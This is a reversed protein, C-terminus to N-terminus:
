ADSDTQNTLFSTQEIEEVDGEILDGREHQTFSFTPVHEPIQTHRNSQVGYSLMQRIRPLLRSNMSGTLDNYNKTASKLGKGVLITKEVIVGISEVIKQAGEVIREQNESQRQVDLQVRAFGILCALAAPGAVTIQLKAAKHLFNPDSLIVKEVAGENPVFMVSVVRPARQERGSARYQAIVETKYNKASLTKLHTNMTKALSAYVEDQESETDVEELELLFKSAKSDIVLVADGPLFVLADPRLGTDELHHQMSFDRGKMLGFSTLTNELGIESFQGAGGPSSLARM